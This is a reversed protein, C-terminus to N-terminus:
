RADVVYDGRPLDRFTVEVGLRAKCAAVAGNPPVEWRPEIVIRRGQVERRASVLEYGPSLFEWVELTYFRQSGGPWAPMGTGPPDDANGCDLSLMRADHRDHTALWAIAGLAVVVTLPAVLKRLPHPHTM